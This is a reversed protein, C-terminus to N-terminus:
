LTSFEHLERKAALYALHAEDETGFLGLHIQKGAKVIAARWAGAAKHWSVGLKSSTKGRSERINQLNQAQTAERLNSWANNSRDGDRHDIGSEPFSGTMYLWALRHAYHMAGDLYVRVYRHGKASGVVKGDRNKFEGTEPSYGLLEKLREQTLDSKSPM